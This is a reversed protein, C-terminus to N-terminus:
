RFVNFSIKQKGPDKELFSTCCVPKTGFGVVVFLFIICHIVWNSIFLDNVFLTNTNALSM